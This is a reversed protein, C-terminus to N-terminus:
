VAQGPILWHSKDLPATDFKTGPLVDSQFGHFTSVGTQPDVPLDPFKAM